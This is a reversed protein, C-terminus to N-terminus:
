MSATIQRHTFPKSEAISYIESSHAGQKLAGSKQIIKEIAHQDLTQDQAYLLNRALTDILKWNQVRTLFYALSQVHFTKAFPDITEGSWTDLFTQLRDIPAPPHQLLDDGASFLCHEGFESRKQTLYGATTMNILRETVIGARKKQHDPLNDYLGPDANHSIIGAVLMLDDKYHIDINEIEKLDMRHCSYGYSYALVVHGSKHYAIQIHNNSQAPLLNLYRRVINTFIMSCNIVFPLLAIAHIEKM